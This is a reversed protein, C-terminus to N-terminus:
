FLIEMKKRAKLAMTKQLPLLTTNPLLDRIENIKGKNNSGIVIEKNKKKLM